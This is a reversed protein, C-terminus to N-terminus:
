HADDEDHEEAEIDSEGDEGDDVESTRIARWDGTYKPVNPPNRSTEQEGLV